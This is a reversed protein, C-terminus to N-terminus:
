TPRERALSRTAAVLVDWLPLLDPTREAIANRQREATAADGRVIPGTLAGRAGLRSWNEVAARILPVLLDREVGVERMLREATGELTVLYNSAM